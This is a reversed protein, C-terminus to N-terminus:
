TKSEIKPWFVVWPGFAQAFLAQWDAEGMLNIRIIILDTTIQKTSICSISKVRAGSNLVISVRRLTYMFIVGNLPKPNVKSLQVDLGPQFIFIRTAGLLKISQICTFKFETNLRHVPYNTSPRMCLSGIRMHHLYIHPRAPTISKLPPLPILLLRRRTETLWHHYSVKWPWLPCQYAFM